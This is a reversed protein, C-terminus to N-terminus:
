LPENSASLYYKEILNLIHQPLSHLQVCVANKHKGSAGPVISDKAIWKKFQKETLNQRLLKILQSLRALYAQKSLTGKCLHSSLMAQVEQATHVWERTRKPRCQLGEKFKIDTMSLESDVPHM